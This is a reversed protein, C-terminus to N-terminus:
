FKLNLLFDVPLVEKLAMKADFTGLDSYKQVEATFNVSELPKNIVNEIAVPDRDM